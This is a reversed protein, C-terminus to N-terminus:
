RKESQLLRWHRVPLKEPNTYTYTENGNTLYWKGNLKFTYNAAPAPKELVLNIASAGNNKWITKIEAIKLPADTTGEKVIEYSSKDMIPSNLKAFVARETNADPGEYFVINIETLSSEAPGVEVRVQARLELSISVFVVLSAALHNLHYKM